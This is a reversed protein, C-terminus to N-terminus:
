VDTKTAKIELWSHFDEEKKKVGSFPFGGKGSVENTM